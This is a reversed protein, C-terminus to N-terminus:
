GVLHDADRRGQYRKQLVVIGVSNKHTGVHLSLGDRRYRGLSGQNRSTLFFFGGFIGALNNNRIDCPHHGFGVTSRYGHFHFFAALSEIKIFKLSGIVGSTHRLSYSNRHTILHFGAHNQCITRRSFVASQSQTFIQEYGENRKVARIEFIGYDDGFSHGSFIKESRNIYISM